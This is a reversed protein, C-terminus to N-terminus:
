RPAAPPLPGLPACCYLGCKCKVMRLFPTGTSGSFTSRAPPTPSCSFPPPLKGGRDSAPATGLLALATGVSSVPIFAPLGSNSLAISAIM